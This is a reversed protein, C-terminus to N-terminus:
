RTSPSYRSALASWGAHCSSFFPRSSECPLREEFRRPVVSPPSGIVIDIVGHEAELRRKIEVIEDVGAKLLDTKETVGLGNITHTECAPPWFDIGYVVDFGSQHFGESFGGGGCFLDIVRVGPKKGRM